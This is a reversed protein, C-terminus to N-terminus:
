LSATAVLAGTELLASLVASVDLVGVAGAHVLAERDGFPHETAVMWRCLPALEPSIEIDAPGLSPHDVRITWRVTAGDETTTLEAPVNTARCYETRTGPLLQPDVQQIVAAPDSAIEAVAAHLEDLLHLLSETAPADRSTARGFVHGRWATSKNLRRALHNTVIQTWHPIHLDFTVALSSEHSQTAHLYGRPLFLISGPRMEIEQVAEPMGLPLAGDFYEAIPGRPTGCVHNHLPEDILDQPAVYWRKSGTLQLSFAPDADFHPFVEGGTTSAFLSCTATHLPLGLDIEIGRLIEALRPVWREVKNFQLLAGADYYPLADPARLLDGYKREDTAAQAPLWASVPDNFVEAVARVDRLEPISTLASLRSIDGHHVFFRGPFEALFDKTSMPAVIASLPLLPAEHSTM